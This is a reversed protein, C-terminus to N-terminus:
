AEAKEPLAAPETEAEAVYVYSSMDGQVHLKPDYGTGMFRNNLAIGRELAAASASFTEHSDAMPYRHDVTRLVVGNPDLNM